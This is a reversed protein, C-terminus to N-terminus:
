YLLDNGCTEALELFKERALSSAQTSYSGSFPYGMDDAIGCLGIAAQTYLESMYERFETLYFLEGTLTGQGEQKLNQFAERGIVLTALTTFLACFTVVRYVFARIKKSQKLNTDM